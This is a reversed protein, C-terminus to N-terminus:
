GRAQVAAVASPSPRNEAKFYGAGGVASSAGLVKGLFALWEALSHPTGSDLMVIAATALLSAVTAIIVKSSPMM